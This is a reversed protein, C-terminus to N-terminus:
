GWSGSSQFGEGMQSSAMASLGAVLLATAMQGARVRRRGNGRM